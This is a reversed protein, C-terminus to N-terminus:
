TNHMHRRRNTHTDTDEQHAQIHRYICRHIHTWTHTRSHMNTYRFRCTDRHIDTSINTHEVIMYKHIQTDTYNRTHM